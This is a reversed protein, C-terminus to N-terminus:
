EVVIRQTVVKEGSIVQMFFIGSGQAKLDITFPIRNSVRPSTYVVEGLINYIKLDVIGTGKTFLTFLGKNPNPFVTISFERQVERIGVCVQFSVNVSDNDKCGNADTVTVSYVGATNVTLTQGTTGNSWLYNSFGAGAIITYVSDTESCLLTDPGLNVVPATNVSTINVSDMSMCNNADNVTVKYTGASLGTINASTQGNSWLFSYPSTGGTAAVLVSGDNGGSCNVNTASLTITPPVSAFVTDSAIASSSCSDSGTVTVSYVGAALGTATANTQGNSWFYTYPTNGGSVTASMSGSNILACSVNTSTLIVTPVEAIGIVALASDKCGNADTVTVKYTGTGLGTVTSNTAGSSWLFSLSGTGGSASVSVSGDTSGCGASTSSATLTIATPESIVVSDYYSCGNNDTVTASLTGASLNSVSPSTQGGSWLYSYPGVGGGATITATGNTSGFCTVNTSSSIGASFAAPETIIVSATGTCSKSDTVTVSYTGAALGTITASTKSNSWQYTYPSTGGIANANATGNTNGSCSVNTTSPAVLLQTPQTITIASSAICSNFDTVTVSYTGAVLGTSNATTQGNSWNYIFPSTGGTAVVTASGSNEGNCNVNSASVAVSPGGVSNVSASATATCGNASTVTVFYTGATLGSITSGTASNSWLYSYPSTGGSAIATATGGSGGCSVNTSTTTATPSANVTVTVTDSSTCNGPNSVTVSYTGSTSVSISQTTAGNSWSYSNGTGTTLTVTSGQCFSLPGSAAITADPTANIIVSYEELEGYSYPGAYCPDVNPTSGYYCLIRMKVTDSVATFPILVTDYALGKAAAYPGFVLEGPDNYSGNNNFDIWGAKGEAWATDTSVTMMYSNGKCVNTTGSPIGKFDQVNGGMTNFSSSNNITGFQVNNIFDGSSSGYTFPTACDIVTMVINSFLPTCGPGTVKARIFVTDNVTSGPMVLNQPNATASGIDTFAIGDASSQWQINGTSGSLGYTRVQNGIATSPGSATGATLSLMNVQVSGSNVGVGCTVVCRYYTSANAAITLTDSTAGPINSFTSNNPSSQWQYTQGTGISNGTLSLLIIGGPCIAIPNAAANGATPPNVCPTSPNITIYYDQTEGFSFNTCSESSLITDNYSCRVRLRTLGTLAGSPIPITGTIVSTTPTTSFYVFEGPNGFDGNQNYDIWVGFGQPWTTDPKLSLNYSFGKLVTTTKSSDFFYNESDGNCGTNQVILTNFTFDDIYDGSSCMNTYTPTCYCPKINVFVSTSSVSTGCTVMCRYYNATTQTAQYTQGTAGSINAWTSNNASSQWQYTQGSGTSNGTLSLTFTDSSCIVTKTSNATGPTPPNICATLPITIIYDETEGSGFSTCADVAGNPNGSARSRVRMRTQGSLATPPITISTTAALNPTSSTTIQKWESTDFVADQNYDIWVSIISSATSTVSITYSLGKTLTATTNGSAPYITYSQAAGSTCGTGANNLTTGVILVTDINDTSDCLVIHDAICYCQSLASMKIYKSVSGVSTGCSVLCRYYTATSQTGSYSVGTAGSINSWTSNNPSSQWQYTQSLGTSNGSLSLTFSKGSCVSDLNSVTTGATPPNICPSGANITIIYDETEGSGFSTCADTAGNSVGSVRSRIRMRTQGTLATPPITVIVTSAVNATSSTTIQKWESTDFIIDQNYDIWVSIISNDTSTVSLTYSNGQTLTATTNGTPPYVSYSQATGSTCGTGANNLTTGVILVTDINDSSSCLVSHTATCYCQSLSTMKIYKSASGVSAGCTVLCRYYTATSQTGSYTIGTAGSINSWTSNNPSSQWQYTQGTGLSNGQLSLTFSSTTCVSDLTSLTTGATPPNTCVSGASITILYDETEGSFFATCADAGGNPSGSARSRVRM